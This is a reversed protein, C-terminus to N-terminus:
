DDRYVNLPWACLEIEPKKNLYSLLNSMAEGPNLAPDIQNEQGGERSLGLLYVFTSNVEGEITNVVLQRNKFINSHDLSSNEVLVELGGYENLEYLSATQYDIETNLALEVDSGSSSSLIVEGWSQLQFRSYESCGEWHIGKWLDDQSVFLHQDHSRFLWLRQQADFELSLDGNKLLLILATFPLKAQTLTQTLDRMQYPFVSQLRDVLPRLDLGIVALVSDACQKVAYVPTHDFRNSSFSNLYCAQKNETIQSRVVHQSLRPAQEIDSCSSSVRTNLMQSLQQQAQAIAAALDVGKGKALYRNGDLTITPLDDCHVQLADNALCNGALLFITLSALVRHTKKYEFSM